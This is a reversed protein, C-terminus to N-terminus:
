RKKQTTFFWTYMSSQTSLGEGTEMEKLQQPTIEKMQKPRLSVKAAFPLIAIVQHDRAIAEFNAHEYLNTQATTSYGTLLLMSLVLLKFTFKNM